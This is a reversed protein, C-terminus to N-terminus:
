AARHSNWVFGHVDWELGMDIGSLLMYINLGWTFEVFVWLLYLSPLHPM